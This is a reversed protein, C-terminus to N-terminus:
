PRTVVVVHLGFPDATVMRGDADVAMLWRERAPRDSWWTRVPPIEVLPIGKPERCARGACVRLVARDPWPGSGVRLYLGDPHAPEAM